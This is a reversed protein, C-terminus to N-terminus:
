TAVSGDAQVWEARNDPAPAARAAQGAARSAATGWVADFVAAPDEEHALHGLGPLHVLRAHAVRALVRQADAAPVTRDNGGVVLVLPTHLRPLADFLPALHWSAMLRLAGAAHAPDAVLRGYLATGQPDLASGTSDILRQLVAPNAAQWAFFHPVLPNIVLWKALPSFWQQVPGSLPRLAGNISVVQQPQALGALGMQLAIAAGASHGVICRPQVALARLLAAVAEAVAPLTVSRAGTSRTFAHGPLDPVIVEFRKALLPALKQWSHASAGTGHLLLVAGARGGEPGMFHQVHWRWGGAEVFHSKDAHPWTSQDRSWDLRPPLAAM